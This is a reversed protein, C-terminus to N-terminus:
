VSCAKLSDAYSLARDVLAAIEHYNLMESSGNIAMGTTAKIASYYAEISVRSNNVFIAPQFRVNKIRCSKNKLIKELTGYRGQVDAFSIDLAKQRSTPQELPQKHWTKKFELAANPSTFNVFAFGLNRRKHFCFPLYFLDYDYNNPWKSMLADQTCWGPINRVMLTVASSAWDSPWSPEEIGNLSGAMLKQELVQQLQQQQQQHEQQQQQEPQDQQDQQDQQKLQGLLKRQELQKQKRQEQQDRQELQKQQKLLKRQEQQEQQKQQELLKQQELQGQQEERDQQEKQLIQQELLQM